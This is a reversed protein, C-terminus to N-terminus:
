ELMVGMVTLYNEMDSAFAPMDAIERPIWDYEHGAEAEAEAEFPSTVMLSLTISGLYGGDVGLVMENRMPMLVLGDQIEAALCFEAMFRLVKIRVLRMAEQSRAVVASCLEFEPLCVKKSDGKLQLINQGTSDVFLVRHPWPDPLWYHPLGGPSLRDVMISIM